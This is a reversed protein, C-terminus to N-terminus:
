GEKNHKPHDSGQKNHTVLFRQVDFSPCAKAASWDRHGKIQTHSLQHQAMLQTLLQWLAEKQETTFNDQAKLQEDVGGVLCIGLNARNHGRVHAGTQNLPRGLQVEGSRTIVFHYGIDRWHRENVHWARIEKVGIDRSAPTASCHVTVWQIEKNSRTM